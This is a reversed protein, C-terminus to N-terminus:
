ALRLIEGLNRPQVDLALSVTWVQHSTKTGASKEYGTMVHQGDKWVEFAHAEGTVPLGYTARIVDGDVVAPARGRNIGKPDIWHMWLGVDDRAIFQQAFQPIARNAMVVAAGGITLQLFNRRNVQAEGEAAHLSDLRM